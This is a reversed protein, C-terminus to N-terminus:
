PDSNRYGAAWRMAGLFHSQVFDENVLDTYHGIATYFMRGGQTERIWTIPHDDGMNGGEYTSEDIRLLVTTSDLESPNADFNYWEDKLELFNGYGRVAEHDLVEEPIQLYASVIASHNLLMTGIMERYWPWETEDKIDGSGHCGVYGGGAQFWTKFAQKQDDSLALGIQTANNFFVVQYNQLNELTLKATDATVDVEFGRTKGLNEILESILPLSSHLFGGVANFVLVRKLLSEGETNTSDLQEVVHVRRIVPTAENGSEDTCTYLVEYVGIEDTNVEGQPFIIIEGDKNDTCYYGPDAFIGGKEVYFMASGRISIRPAETDPKTTFKWVPGKIIEDGVHAIVQWHYTTNEDLNELVLYTNTRDAAKVMEPPSTKDVLVEYTVTDGNRSEVPTWSLTLSLGHGTSNNEPSPMSPKNPHQVTVTIPDSFTISQNGNVDQSKVRYQYIRATTDDLDKFVTDIYGPQTILNNLNLQVPFSVAADNRYIVYGALDSVIVSDWTIVVLGSDTHTVAKLNIPAPPPLAPDYELIVADLVTNKGSEVEVDNQVATLYGTHSFAVTYTGV